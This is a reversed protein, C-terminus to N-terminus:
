PGEHFFDDGPGGHLDDEGTGGWLRDDGKGGFIEDEGAGGCITDNGGRGRITDDGGLGVIVDPGSTGRLKDDGSTGRITASKGECSGRLAPTTAASTNTVTVNELFTNSGPDYAAAGFEPADVTLTSPDIVYTWGAVPAETLHYICNPYRQAQEDYVNSYVFLPGSTATGGPPLAFTSSAPPVTCNSSTIQITWGGAPPTASGNVVSTARIRAPACGSFAETTAVFCGPQIQVAGVTGTLAGNLASAGGVVALSGALLFGAISKM